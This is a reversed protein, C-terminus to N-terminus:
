IWGMYHAYSFVIVWLVVIIYYWTKYIDKAKKIKNIIFAIAYSILFIGLLFIGLGVFYELATEPKYTIVRGM